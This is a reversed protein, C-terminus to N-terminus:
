VWNEYHSYFDPQGVLKIDFKLSPEVESSANHIRFSLQWGENLVILATNHSNPKISVDYFRNPLKLKSLKVQPLISGAPKNLDGYLSFAQIQTTKTKDLSIIKYFDHTGILYQLLKSPIINPNVSEIRKLEDMFANLVPLYFREAKNDLSNWMVHAEKLLRLEDFIPKINNFYIPSCPTDFWKKGFDLTDSLRSHKVASHNHKISLGIEWQYNKRIFLIDRVDGEQGVSDAQLAIVLPENDVSNILLPELKSLINVAANGACDLQKQIDPSFSDYFEKAIFYSSNELVDVKQYNLLYKRFCNVCAYEFAKGNKIQNSM